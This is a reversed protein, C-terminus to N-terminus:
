HGQPHGVKHAGGGLAKLPALLFEQALGPGHGAHVLLLGDYSNPVIELGVVGGIDDHLVDLAGVEVIQHLLPSAADGGLLEKGQQLGQEPRQAHHMFIPEDVPIDGRVIQHQLVALDTQQVEATGPLGGPAGLGESDGELLAVGRHLLVLGLALPGPGVDVGQAGGDVKAEGSLGRGLGQVSNGGVAQQQGALQPHGQQGALLLGQELPQVQAGVPAVAGHRLEVGGQILGADLGRDTAGVPGLGQLGGNRDGQFLLGSRGRLRHRGFRQGFLLHLFFSRGWSLVM